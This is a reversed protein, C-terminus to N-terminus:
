MKRGVSEYSRVVEVAGHITMLLVHVPTWGCAGIESIQGVPNEEFMEFVCSVM